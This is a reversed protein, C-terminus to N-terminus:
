KNAKLEAELVDAYEQIANGLMGAIHMLGPANKAALPAKRARLAHKLATEDPCLHNELAWEGAKTKSIIEGTRLTWICRSIDLLWGFSYLTEGTPIAHKRICDLHSSVADALDEYSPERLAARIDKGILLKASSTLQKMLFPDATFAVSVRQGSTGWYVARSPKESIFDDLPLIAGEFSRYIGRGPAENVMTQRLETLNNEEAASLTHGTLAIVDIDSWGERFDDLAVSGYLYVSCDKNTIDSIREAMKNIANSM